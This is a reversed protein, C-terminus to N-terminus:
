SIETRKLYRPQKDCETGTEVEQVYTHTRPEVRLEDYEKWKKRGTYIYEGVELNQKQGCQM